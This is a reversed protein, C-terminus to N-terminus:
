NSMTLDFQEAASPGSMLQILNIFDQQSCSSCYGLPPMGKKGLYVSKLIEIKGKKFIDIWRKTDGILPANTSSDAHCQVCNIKLQLYNNDTTIAQASESLVFFLLSLRFFTSM